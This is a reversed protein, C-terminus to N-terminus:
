GKALSHEYALWSRIAIETREVADIVLVRLRRDFTYRRWVTEFQTGSAFKEAARDFFPELYGSLRYYSVMGLRRIIASRDGSMGRSLLLDAQQEYTLHPKSYRM